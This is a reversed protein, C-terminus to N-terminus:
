PWWAPELSHFAPTEQDYTSNRLDGQPTETKLIYVCVNMMERMWSSQTQRSDVYEDSTKTNCM